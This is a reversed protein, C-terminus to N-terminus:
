LFNKILIIYTNINDRNPLNINEKSVLNLQFNFSSFVLECLSAVSQEEDITILSAAINGICLVRSFSCM